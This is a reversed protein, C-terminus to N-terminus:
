VPPYQPVARGPGNIPLAGPSHRVKRKQESKLRVLGPQIALTVQLEGQIGGSGGVADPIVMGVPVAAVRVAVPHSLPVMKHYAPGLPPVGSPLPLVKVM